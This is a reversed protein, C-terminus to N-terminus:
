LLSPPRVIYTGGNSAGSTLLIIDNSCHARSLTFTWTSLTQQMLLPLYPPYIHPLIPLLTKPGRYFLYITLSSVLYFLHYMLFLPTLLPGLFLCHLM